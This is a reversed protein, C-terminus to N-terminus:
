KPEAASILTRRGGRRGPRCRIYTVSSAQDPPGAVDSPAPIVKHVKALEIEYVMDETAPSDGPTGALAAPAWLLVKEREAM